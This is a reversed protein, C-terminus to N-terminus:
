AAVRVLMEPVVRHQVTRLLRLEGGLQARVAEPYHTNDGEAAQVLDALAKPLGDTMQNQEREGIRRTLGLPAAAAM